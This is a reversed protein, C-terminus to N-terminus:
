NINTLTTLTQGMSLKHQNIAERGTEAPRNSVNAILDDRKGRVECCVSINLPDVKQYPSM